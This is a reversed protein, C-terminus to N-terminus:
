TMIFMNNSNAKKTYADTFPKHAFGRSSITPSLFNILNEKQFILVTALKPPWDPQHMYKKTNM